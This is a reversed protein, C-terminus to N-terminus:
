KRTATFTGMLKGDELYASGRLVPEAKLTAARIYDEGHIEAVYRVKYPEGGENVLITFELECSLNAESCVAQGELPSEFVGPVVINGSIAGTFNRLAIPSAGQLNMEDHFLRQGIQMEVAYHGDLIGDAAHAALSSFLITLFLFHKKM